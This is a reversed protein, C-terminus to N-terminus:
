PIDGVVWVFPDCVAVQQAAILSECARQFAIQKARPSESASIGMRYAHDRWQEISVVRTGPPIDSSPARVEGREALAKRLSRLAIQSSKSLNPQEHRQASGSAKQRLQEPDLIVTTIPDGDGDLGFNHTLAQFRTLVGEPQDNAKVVDAIKVEDGRIQVMVDVDGAHANSGRAGRAEDKGTHGVIAVHAGTADQVRRLNALARGQDKAKDEDGGGAAVGKAFTDVIVLGVATEFREEAAYITAIMVEACSPDMIDILHGVVAIPLETVGFRQRYAALRRQVLVAREFAFYVVGCPGKTRYGRWDWGAAAHVSIECMLASKLKGPPAVWSSTERKALVGKIIWKKHGSLEIEVFLTFPLHQPTDSAPSPRRGGSPTTFPANM